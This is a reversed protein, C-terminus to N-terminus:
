ATIVRLADKETLKASFKRADFVRITKLTGDMKAILDVKRLLTLYM